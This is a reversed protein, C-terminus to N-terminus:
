GRHSDDGHTPRTRSLDVFMWLVLIFGMADFLISIYNLVRYHEPILHEAIDAFLDFFLVFM